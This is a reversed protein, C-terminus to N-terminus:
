GSTLDRFWLRATPGQGFTWNRGLCSAAIIVTRHRATDEDHGSTLPRQVGIRAVMERPPGVDGDDQVTADRGVTATHVDADLDLPPTVPPTDM